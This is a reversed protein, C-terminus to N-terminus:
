DGGALKLFARKYDAGFQHYHNIVLQVGFTRPVQKDKGTLWDRAFTLSSSQRNASYDMLATDRVDVRGNGDFDGSINGDLRIYDDFNVSGNFDTSGSISGDSTSSHQADAFLRRTVQQGEALTVKFWGSRPGVAAMNEPVIQRLRYTGARLGDFRFSGRKDSLTTPEKGKDWAGDNDYDLYIRVNKIGAEGAEHVANHNLDDYVAGSISATGALLQRSELSQVSVLGRHSAHRHQM